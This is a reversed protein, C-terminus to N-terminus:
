FDLGLSLTYQQQLSSEDEATGGGTVDVTGSGPLTIMGEFVIRFVNVIARVGLFPRHRAIIQSDFIFENPPCAQGAPCAGAFEDTSPTADLVSTRAFVLLMQYGGYPALNLTSGLGFVHSLSLDLGVTTMHLDKAGLLTSVMSRFSITPFPIHHFGEHIALKAYGSMTWMRSNFLKTAGAGVELSPWLGKRGMIQLTPLTPTPESRATKTWFDADNSITNLSVDAAVAFGSLGLSDSSDVPKAAMLVGLESALSRFGDLDKQLGGTGRSGLATLDLDYRGALAESSVLSTAAAFFFALCTSRGLRRPM